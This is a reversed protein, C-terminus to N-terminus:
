EPRLAIAPDVHSARQAPVLCALVTVVILLLSVTAVAEAYDPRFDSFLVSLFHAALASLVAGITLGVLTLALGGRICSLLIKTATAGLAMRVGIENTRQAISYSLVGYLGVAALMLALAAFTGLLVTSQKPISLQRGVIEDVTQVHWIPQNKDISWIAQRVAPVLSKPEVAARVLIGVSRGQSQQDAQEQLRYITPRLEETVGRDRIEKVLGVVTYWYGEPGLEGFKFQAGLPSRGPFTLNAFTENVIAVPAASHRDSPEFFRGERLVAGITQFYSRSVIRTLAVQGPVSEQTQGALLYFTAQDTATMPIQSVAGASTIGPIARIRDVIQNVYNVRREFDQYRFLPVELTLLRQSQLGLNTDYLHKLNELLLGTSTLLVVALATELVILSQQFSQSHPGVSGRGATRLGVQPTLQSARMAPFLGFILAAASGTCASFAFVRWDLGLRTAGMTEPVLTELFQMAPLALALGAITGLGALVLSETLFQGMLRGRRAGLAARVAVERGRAAGRSVLLNALNVCAILLLALSSSVLLILATGTRGTIEDRLPMLVVGHPGRSDKVSVQLSLAAMSEQATARTVGHKLRAVVQLDTWGFNTRMWGPFSAPMWVDIDRSPLFYFEPPMVGVVEYPNDNMLITSGLIRPSGGYRRQWLGYSILVVRDGNLDEPETFVRGILPKVGLVSWLGATAKRAAVQEPEADGSLTADVPQTAAIDTFVTQLRRWELWEAPSPPHKPEGQRLYNGWIMMLRDAEAYPLPRILVSDAASFTATVGGIGLALTGIAIMSFAPTRRVQRMGYAADQVFQELRTWGWAARTSESLLALNGLERRAASRAAAEPLGEQKRDDAEAQLHFALEERLEAEKDRRRVLWVLKRLFSKM